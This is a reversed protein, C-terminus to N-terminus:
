LWAELRLAALWADALDFRGAAILAALRSDDARGQSSRERADISGSGRASVPVFVLHLRPSARALAKAWGVARVRDGRRRVVVAVHRRPVDRATATAADIVHFGHARARAAMGDTGRDGCTR